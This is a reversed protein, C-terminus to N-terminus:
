RPGNNTCASRVWKAPRHSSRWIWIANIAPTSLRVSSNRMAASVARVGADGGPEPAAAVESERRRADHEGVALDERVRNEAGRASMDASPLLLNLFLLGLLVVTAIARLIM